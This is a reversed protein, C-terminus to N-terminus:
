LIIRFVTRNSNNSEIELRGEINELLQQCLKLGLGLGREGYTGPESAYKKSLIREIKEESIGSGTNEISLVYQQPTIGNV